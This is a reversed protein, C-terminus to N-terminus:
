SPLGGALAGMKVSGEESVAAVVGSGLVGGMTNGQVSERVWRMERKLM